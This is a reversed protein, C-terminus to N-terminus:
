PRGKPSYIKRVSEIRNPGEPPVAALLEAISKKLIPHRLNPAIEALPALVFRRKALAPHPVTLQPTNVILDDVLLLDLDLTRPGNPKATRRDRGYRRETALLFDLLAEPDLATTFTVAANVFAPQDALGVPDTRYLSSRGVITGAAALDSMAAELTQEPSGAPSPLNSGLGVAALHTASPTASVTASAFV